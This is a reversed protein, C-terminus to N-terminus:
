NMTNSVTRYVVVLGFGLEVPFFTQQGRLTQSFHV